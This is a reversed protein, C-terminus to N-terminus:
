LLMIRKANTKTLKKGRVNNTAKDASIVVSIFLKNTSIQRTVFRHYLSWYLGPLSPSTNTLERLAFESFRRRLKVCDFVFVVVLSQKDFTVLAVVRFTRSFVRGASLGLGGRDSCLIRLVKRRRLKAGVVSVAEM